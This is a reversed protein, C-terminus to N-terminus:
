KVSEIFAITEKMIRLLEKKAENVEKMGGFYCMRRGKYDGELLPSKIKEISPHHFILHVRRTDRHNFTVIDEKYYYSPANWKIRESIRSDSEQLIKRLANMEKKLPHELAKMYEAVKETDTRNKAIM